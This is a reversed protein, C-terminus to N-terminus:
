RSNFEKPLSPPSSIGAGVGRQGSNLCTSRRSSTMSKIICARPASTRVATRALQPCAYRSAREIHRRHRCSRSHRYQSAVACCVCRAGFKQGLKSNKLLHRAVSESGAGAGLIRFLTKFYIPRLSLIQVESGWDGLGSKLQKPTNRATVYRAQKRMFILMITSCPTVCGWM